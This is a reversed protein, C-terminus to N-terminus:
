LNTSKDFFPFSPSITFQSITSKSIGFYVLTFDPKQSLLENISKFKFGSKTQYFFFGADGKVPVSRKCLDLILDLGGRGKGLFNYGNQSLSDALHSGLFGSGGFITVNKNKMM